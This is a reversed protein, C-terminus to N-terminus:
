VVMGQFGLGKSVLNVYRKLVTFETGDIMMTHYIDAVEAM